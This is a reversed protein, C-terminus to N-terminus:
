TTERSARTKEVLEGWSIGLWRSIQLVGKEDELRRHKSSSAPDAGHYLLFEMLRAAEETTKKAACHLPTLYKDSRRWNVDAGADLFVQTLNISCTTSAINVLGDGLYRSNLKELTGLERWFSLVLHERDSKNETAAVVRRGILEGHVLMLGQGVFDQTYLSFLFTKWIEYMEKSESIIVAALIEAYQYSLYHSWSNPTSARTRAALWRSLDFNGGEIAAICIKKVEKGKKSSQILAQMNPQLLDLMSPSGSAAAQISLEHKVAEPLKEFRPLLARVAALNNTYVLDFLLPQIEDDDPEGIVGDKAHGDPRHASELHHDRWKRTLFGTSSYECGPVDCKWPQEHHKEHANRTSRREFGHRHSYCRLFGCKFARPGYHQEITLCACDREHRATPCLIQDLHNYIRISIFSITLPDLNIWRALGKGLHYEANSVTKQFGSVDKLMQQLHSLQPGLSDFAIEMDHGKEGRGQFGSASRERHLSELKDVLDAPLTNKRNMILFEKLLEFWFGSAFDHLRYAGSLLNKDIEEESLEPDHHGQCLYTICCRTLSLTADLPAVHDPTQHHSIYEKATFHVFHVYDDVVEVIPGCLRVVDLVSVFRVDGDTDESNVLLAHEIERRTLPTPACGIWGLVKRAKNKLMVNTSRNIKGFIRGYADDLSTPPCNLLSRLEDASEIEWILAFIVRTYLFMGKATHALPALLGEIEAQFESTFSRERFWEAMRHNAYAQVSGSNRHHVEIDATNDQLIATIDSEPRSSLLFRCDKCDISLRLLQKLLRTHEMEEIEDIGDVVIYVLGACKLLSQLLEAAGDLSSKMDHGNSQCLAAQLTRSGDALQFILSHIVSLATTHSVRYSLFAFLIANSELAQNKLSKVHTIITAALFTKGSGPIGKLWMINSASQSPQMWGQFMKDRFLWKGTGPCTNGHLRYLDTDYSTPSINSRIRDYEQQMSARKTLEFHELERCRANHAERIESFQVENRMLLAHRKILEGVEKIKERRSPWLMEFIFKLRSSGFFKVTILHFDLIDKFFLILVEKIRTNDKFIRTIETFEPLLTGIEELAGVIADFSQKLVNAWQLVLKIPGWILALMDPKVQVFVEVVGAYERLRSLYVEIKSLNRLHGTRAQEKQLEDTADYVQDISTTGLIQRYLEENKLNSKFDQMASEFAQQVPDYAGSM